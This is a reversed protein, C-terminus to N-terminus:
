ATLGNQESISLVSTLCLWVLGWFSFRCHRSFPRLASGHKRWNVSLCGQLITWFSYGPVVSCDWLTFFIWCMCSNEPSPSPWILEHATWLTLSLFIAEYRTPLSDQIKEPAWLYRLGNPLASVPIFCLDHHLSLSHSKLLLPQSLAKALKYGKFVLGDQSLAKM